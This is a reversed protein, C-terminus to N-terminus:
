STSINRPLSIDFTTGMGKESVVELKGKHKEVIINHSISLGLGTGSGVPKTTYFPDFIKTLTVDDMGIGNDSISIKVYAEDFTTAIQIRGSDVYQMEKIAQAANVILNVLVQEIEGKNCFVLPCEMFNKELEAVYKVQNNTVMLVEEIIDNVDIYEHTEDESIRSFNRMSTVIKAMRELGKHSEDVVEPLDELIFELDYKKYESELAKQFNDPLQKKFDMMWDFFSILDESYNKINKFNSMVFALPNNIEHAVGAALEGIAVLKEKQVMYFQAEKIKRNADLLQHATEKIQKKQSINRLASKVRAVFDLDDFPKRIYDTAGNEFCRQLTENDSISTLMIVDPVNEIPNKKLHELVDLGTKIPMIIDLLILDVSENYIFDLAEQGDNSIFLDAVIKHKILTDKAIIQNIKSDDVILIKM